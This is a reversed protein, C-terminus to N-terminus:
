NEKNIDQSISDLLGNIFKRSEDDSYKKALEIGENISVNKPIDELFIIEYCALRLIALDIKSLRELTWGKLNDAIKKDIIEVEKLFGVIFNKSFERDEKSLPQNDLYNLAYEEFGEQQFALQFITQLIVERVKRRSM